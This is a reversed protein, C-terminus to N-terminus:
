SSGRPGSLLDRLANMGGIRPLQQGPRGPVPQRTARRLVRALDLAFQEKAETSPEGARPDGLLKIWNSLNLIDLITRERSEQNRRLGQIFEVSRRVVDSPASGRNSAKVAQDEDWFGGALGHALLELPGRDPGFGSLWDSSVGCLGALADRTSKRTTVTGEAGAMKGLGAVSLKGGGGQGKLAAVAERLSLGSVALASRLRPGSIQVRPPTPKTSGPGTRTPM